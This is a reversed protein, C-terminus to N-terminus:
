MLTLLSRRLLPGSNPGFLEDTGKKPWLTRPTDNKSQSGDIRKRMAGHWGGHRRLRSINKEERARRDM